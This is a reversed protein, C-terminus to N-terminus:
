KKSNKCKDLMTQYQSKTYKFGTDPDKYVDALPWPMDVFQLRNVKVCPDNPDVTPTPAPAVGAVVTGTNM